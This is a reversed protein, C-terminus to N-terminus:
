ECVFTLESTQIMDEDGTERDIVETVSENSSYVGYEKGSADKVTNGNKFAKM